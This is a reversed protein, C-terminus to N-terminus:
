CLQREIYTRADSCTSSVVRKAWRASAPLRALTYRTSQMSTDVSTCDGAPQRRPAAGAAAEPRADVPVCVASFVPTAHQVVLMRACTTLTVCCTLLDRRTQKCAVRQRPLAYARVRVAHKPVTRLLLAIPGRAVTAPM